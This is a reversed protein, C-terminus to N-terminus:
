RKARTYCLRDTLRPTLGPRSRRSAWALKDLSGVGPLEHPAPSWVLNGGLREITVSESFRCLTEDM